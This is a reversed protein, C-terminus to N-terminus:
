KQRKLRVAWRNCCLPTITSVLRWTQIVRDRKKWSPSPANTSAARAQEYRGQNDYLAALNNLSTATNPHDPGLAKERIDLARQHLPEAQEYQARDHLYNATKLLLDAAVDSEPRQDEIAQRGAMAHPLLRECQPWNQYEPWPLAHNLQRIVREGWVRHDEPRLDDKIVERM